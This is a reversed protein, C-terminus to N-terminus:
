KEMPSVDLIFRGASCHPVTDFCNCRLTMFKVRYEGAYLIILLSFFWHIYLLYNYDCYITVKKNWYSQISFYPNIVNCDSNKWLTQCKEFKKTSQSSIPWQSFVMKILPFDMLFFQTPRSIVIMKGDLKEFSNPM